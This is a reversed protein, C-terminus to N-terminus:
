FGLGLLATPPLTLEKRPSPVTSTRGRVEPGGFLAAPFRAAGRPSLPLAPSPASRAAQPAPLPLRRAAPAAAADAERGATGGGADQGAGLGGAARGPLAGRGYGAPWPPHSPPPPSWEHGGPPSLARVQSHSDRM